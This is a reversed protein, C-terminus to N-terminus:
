TNLCGHTLVIFCVHKITVKANSRLGVLFWVWFLQYFTSISIKRINIRELCFQAKKCLKASMMETGVFDFIFNSMRPWLVKVM